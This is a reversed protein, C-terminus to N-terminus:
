EVHLEPLHDGPWALVAVRGPANRKSGKQGKKVGWSGALRKFEGESFILRKM